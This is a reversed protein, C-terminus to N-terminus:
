KKISLLKSLFGTKSKTQLSSEVIKGLLDTLGNEFTLSFDDAGTIAHALEHLLTGAYQSLSKLQSRKIITRKENPVWLGLTEVSSQNIAMTESILIENVHSKSYGTLAIIQDTFQYISKEQISLQEYPVFQFHFNDNYEQRYEDLNRITNGEIDKISQLRNAITEPIVVIRHGDNRASTVLSGGNLLQESTLFIVDENSNLIRCAHLQVDVWQLEDHSRGTEFNQLDNTLTNAVNSSSCALLLSKVRDTYASRGVHSRERNLAKRLSTTTSTINYSFLFNEEEAVSLGNVYIRAARNKVNKLVMGYKTTELVEDGSYKLFLDKAEAMQEDKIGQLIFDSGVIDSVSPPQILAHLTSIDEFGHKNAKGITIDGFRSQILVHIDHRNFTALADKLGVGFKGIVKEPNDLKEQNENQTFHEYKLGRGFDRIHWSGSDDKIIQPERTKTLAHEDLANAIIERLAFVVTWHELVQEINLDFERMQQSM